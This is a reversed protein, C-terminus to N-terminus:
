YGFDNRDRCSPAVGGMIVSEGQLGAAAAASFDVWLGSSRWCPHWDCGMRPQSGLVSHPGCIVGFSWLVAAGVAGM